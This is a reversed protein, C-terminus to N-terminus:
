EAKKLKIEIKPNSFDTIVTDKVEYSKGEFLFNIRNESEEMHFYSYGSTNTIGCNVWETGYYKVRLQVGPLPESTNSDVVHFEIEKLAEPEYGAPMGYCAQFIFLATSLTTGKLLNRLWKKM